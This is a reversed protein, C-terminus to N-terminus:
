SFPVMYNLLSNSLYTGQGSLVTRSGQTLSGQPEAQGQHSEQDRTVTMVQGRGCVKKGTEDPPQGTGGAPFLCPLCGASRAGEGYGSLKWTVDIKGPKM